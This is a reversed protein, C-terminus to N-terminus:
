INGRHHIYFYKPVSSKKVEVGLGKVQVNNHECKFCTENCWRFDIYKVHNINLCGVHM